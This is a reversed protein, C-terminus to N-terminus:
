EPSRSPNKPTVTSDGCSFPGATINTFFGTPPQTTFALIAPDQLPFVHVDITYVLSSHSVRSTSRLSSGDRLDCNKLPVAEM